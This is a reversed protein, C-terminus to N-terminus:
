GHPYQNDFAIKSPFTSLLRASVAIVTNNLLQFVVWQVVSLQRCKEDKVGGGEVCILARRGRIVMM